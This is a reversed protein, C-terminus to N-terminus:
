LGNSITDSYPQYDTGRREFLRLWALGTDELAELPIPLSELARPEVKLLCTVPSDRSVPPSSM